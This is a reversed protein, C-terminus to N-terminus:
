TDSLLEATAAAEFTATPVLINASVGRGGSLTVHFPKQDGILDQVARNAAAVENSTGKQMYVKTLTKLLEMDRTARRNNDPNGYPLGYYTDGLSDAATLQARLADEINKSKTEVESKTGTLPVEDPKMMAAQFLRNAAEVDGRQAAQAAAEVTDPLHNTGTTLQHLIAEQQTPDQTINMLAIFASAREQPPRAPNNMVEGVKSVV